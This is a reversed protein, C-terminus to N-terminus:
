ARPPSTLDVTLRPSEASAEQQQLTAITMAQTNVLAQLQQNRKYLDAVRNQLAFHAVDLDQEADAHSVRLNDREQTLTSIEREKAVIEQEMARIRAPNAIYGGERLEREFAERSIEEELRFFVVVGFLTFLSAILIIFRLACAAVKWCGCATNSERWNCIRRALGTFSNAHRVAVAHPDLPAVARM